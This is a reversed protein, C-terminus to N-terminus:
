ESDLDTARFPFGFFRILYRARKGECSTAKTEDDNPGVDSKREKSRRRVFMANISIRLNASELSRFASEIKANTKASDELFLHKLDKLRQYLPIPQVVDGWESNGHDLEFFRDGRVQFAISRRFHPFSGRDVHHFNLTFQDYVTLEGSRRLTGPGM